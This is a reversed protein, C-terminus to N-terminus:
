RCDGSQVPSTLPDPQKTYIVKDREFTIVRNSDVTFVCYNSLDSRHETMPPVEPFRSLEAGLESVAGSIAADALQALQRQQEYLQQAREIRETRAARLGLLALAIAPVAILLGFGWWWTRSSRLSVSTFRM